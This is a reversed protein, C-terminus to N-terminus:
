CYNDDSYISNLPQKEHIFSTSADFRIWMLLKGVNQRFSKENFNSDTIGSESKFKNAHQTHTSRTDNTFVISFVNVKTLESDGPGIWGTHVQHKNLSCGTNM